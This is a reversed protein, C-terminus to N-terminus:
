PMGKTCATGRCRLHITGGPLHYTSVVRDNPFHYERALVFADTWDDPPSTLPPRPFRLSDIHAAVSLGVSSSDVIYLPHTKTDAIAQRAANPYADFDGSAKNWIFTGGMFLFKMAIMTSFLPVLWRRFSLAQSQALLLVVLLACWPYLPLIYRINTSPALLYPLYNLIVLWLATRALPTEQFSPLARKRFFWYAMLASGPLLVVFSEGLFVVREGSYSSLSFLPKEGALKTILVQVMGPTSNANEVWGWWVLPYVIALGHIFISIPNLFVRRQDKAIILAALLSTAYFVYGTLAKSMFSGILGVLVGILLWPRNEHMTLLMSVIALFVFLGFLPDAYALWGRYFLVDGSFFFLAGLFALRRDRYVRFVFAFFLLGTGITAVATVLRSAILVNEWGLLDAIPIMLWNILPPRPYPEGYLTPITWEGRHVMEMSTITYVGEEGTYPLFLTPIFSLVALALLIRYHTSDPSSHSIATPTPM